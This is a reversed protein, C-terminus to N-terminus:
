SEKAQLIKVLYKRFLIHASNLEFAPNFGDAIPSRRLPTLTLQIDQRFNVTAFRLPDPLQVM